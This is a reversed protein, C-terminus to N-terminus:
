LLEEREREIERDCVCVCVCVCVCERERERKFFAVVALCAKGTIHVCIEFDLAVVILLTTGYFSCLIAFIHKWDKKEVCRKKRERM